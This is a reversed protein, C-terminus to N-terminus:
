GMAQEIFEIYFTIEHIFIKEQIRFGSETEFETFNNTIDYLSHYDGTLERKYYIFEVTTIHGRHCLEISIFIMYNLDKNIVSNKLAFNIVDDLVHSFYSVMKDESYSDFFLDDEMDSLFRDAISDLRFNTLYSHNFIEFEPLAGSYQVDNFQAHFKRGAKENRIRKNPNRIRKRIRLEKLQRTIVRKTKLQTEKPISM